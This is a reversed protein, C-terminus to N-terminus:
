VALDRGEMENLKKEVERLRGEVEEVYGVMRGLAYFMGSTALGLILIVVGANILIGSIMPSLLNSVVEGALVQLPLIFNTVMRSAGTILGGGALLSVALIFGTIIYLGKKLMQLGRSSATTETQAM